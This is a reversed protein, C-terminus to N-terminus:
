GEQRGARWYGMFAVQGRDVGHDTVLLRRLAKVTGAEGAVWAYFRGGSSAQPAEWLLERDVDVDELATAAPHDTGIVEPRDRCFQEVAAILARGPEAERALWHLRSGSPVEVPLADDAQPIKLFAHVRRGRSPDPGATAAMGELIACVAPAATEDGALLIEPAAGPHFDIGLGSHPSRSDPGVVVLEDGIGSDLAFRSGPGAPGHIAVDVTLMRRGPDIARVTYTRMPNRASDPAALWRQYWDGSELAGADDLGLDCWSGDPNPLLLKIRQDLRDTGFVDLDEGALELRIFHPSLRQRAAVRVRYPRFGGTPVPRPDPTSM